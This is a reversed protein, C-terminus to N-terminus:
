HLQSPSKNMCCIFDINLLKGDSFDYSREWIQKDNSPNLEELKVINDADISLAGPARGTFFFVCHQLEQTGLERQVKLHLKKFRKNPM